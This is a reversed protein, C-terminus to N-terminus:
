STRIVRHCQGTHNQFGPMDPDLRRAARQQGMTRLRRCRSPPPNSPPRPMLTAQFRRSPFFARRLHSCIRAKRPRGGGGKEGINKDKSGERRRGSRPKPRTPIIRLSQGVAPAVAQMESPQALGLPEASRVRQTPLLRCITGRGRLTSRHCAPRVM